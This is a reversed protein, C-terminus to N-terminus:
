KNALTVDNFQWLINVNGDALDFLEALIEDDENTNVFKKEDQVQDNLNETNNEIITTM